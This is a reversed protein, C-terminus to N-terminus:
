ELPFTKELIKIVKAKTHFLVENEASLFLFAYLIVKAKTHFSVENEASLFLFAYLNEGTFYVNQLAAINKGCIKVSNM